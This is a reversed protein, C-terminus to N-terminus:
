KKNVKVKKVNKMLTDEKAGDAYAEAVSNPTTSVPVKLSSLVDEIPEPKLKSPSDPDLGTLDIENKKDVSKTEIENLASPADSDLGLPNTDIVVNSNKIKSTSNQIPKVQLTDVIASPEVTRKIVVDTGYDKWDTFRNSDCIQHYHLCWVGPNTSNFDVDDFKVVLNSSSGELKPVTVNLMPIFLRSQWVGASFMTLVLNHLHAPYDITVWFGKDLLSTITNKWYLDIDGDEPRFSHNAGMFIHQIKHEKAFSEIESIPHKGVVFLTKKGFAPTQEVEPGIFFEVNEHGKRNM